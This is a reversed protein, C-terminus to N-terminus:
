EFANRVRRIITKRIFTLKAPLGNSQPHDEHYVFNQCSYAAPKNM